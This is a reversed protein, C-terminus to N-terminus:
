PPTSGPTTLIISRLDGSIVPNQRGKELLVGDVLDRTRAAAFAGLEPLSVLGDHDTDAEGELGAVVATTFAGGGQEGFDKYEYSREDASCSAFTMITPNVRELEKAMLGSRCTDLLFVVQGRANPMARFVDETSIATNELSELQADFPLIYFEGRKGVGEIGAFAVIGVDKMGLKARLSAIEAVVRDRTADSNLLTTAQVRRGAPAYRKLTERLRMIDETAYRLPHAPVAAYENIGVGLFYLNGVDSPNAPDTTGGRQGTDATTGAASGTGSRDRLAFALLTAGAASLLIGTAAWRLAPSSLWRGRRKGGHLVNDVADCLREIDNRFDPDARVPIANRFALSRLPEPLDEARPMTAGEVLVPMVPINRELATRVEIHVYDNPDDIRRRRSDDSAPLWDDGIIVLLVDCQAAAQAMVQRFDSGAPISDVDKFLRDHRFRLRLHDFIRGTVDQTDRRRYSVFIDHM